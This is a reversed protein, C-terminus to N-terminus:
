LFVNSYDVERKEIDSYGPTQAGLLPLVTYWRDRAQLRQWHIDTTMERLFIDHENLFSLAIDFFKSFKKVYSPNLVFGATVQCSFVRFINDIVKEKQLSETNCTLLFVDWEPIKELFNCFNSDVEEPSQKFFFDDELIMINGPVKLSVIKRALACHSKLCGRAGDKEYIAPFRSIQSGGFGAEKLNKVLSLKRDERSDLNIYFIQAISDRFKCPRAIRLKKLCSFKDITTPEAPKRMEPTIEVKAREITEGKEHNYERYSIEDWDGGYVRVFFKQPDCPGVVGFSGFSYIKLCGVEDETFYDGPWAKRYWEPVPVYNGEEKKYFVVDLFPFTRVTGPVLEDGAGYFIKCGGRVRTMSYGCKKFVPALEWFRKEDSAFIGIDLDDDWPILGQNRVAGLLTGDIAWYTIGHAHLILDADYMLQYLKKIVRGSTEELLPGVREIHRSRQDKKEFPSVGPYFERFFDRIKEELMRGANLARLDRKEEREKKVLLFTLILFLFILLLLYLLTESM